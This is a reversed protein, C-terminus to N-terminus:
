PRDGGDTRDEESPMGKGFFERILNESVMADKTECEWLVLVRWGAENLGASAAEDRRVNAEFKECWFETRTKPMTAGRCGPHRHWFCGHVFVVAKHRPLVIDPSGPLGKRHLRFRYGLGHLLSRVRLEPKTDRGRILAMNRSREASTLRDMQM